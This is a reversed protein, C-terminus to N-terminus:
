QIIGWATQATKVSGVVTVPIVGAVGQANVIGSNPQVAVSIRADTQLANIIEKVIVGIMIDDLNPTGDPLTGVPLGLQQKVKLIRQTIEISSLGKRNKSALILPTAIVPTKVNKFNILGNLDDLIEEINM